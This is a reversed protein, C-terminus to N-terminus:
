ETRWEIRNLRTRVEDSFADRNERALRIAAMVAARSQAYPGTSGAATRGRLAAVSRIVGIHAEHFAKLFTKQKEVADRLQMLEQDRWVFESMRRQQATAAIKYQEADARQDAIAKRLRIQEAADKTAQLNANLWTVQREADRYKKEMGDLESRLAVINTVLSDAEHITDPLNLLVADLRAHTGESIATSASWAPHTKQLADLYLPPMLERQEPSIGLKGWAMDRSLGRHEYKELRTRQKYTLLRNAITRYARDSERSWAADMDSAFLDHLTIWEMAVPTMCGNAEVLARRSREIAREQRRYM